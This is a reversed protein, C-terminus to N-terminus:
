RIGSFNTNTKPVIDIIAAGDECIAGTIQRYIQDVQARSVAQYARDPSAIERIFEMNVEQGLGIVYVEVGTAKLASAAEKAYAEPEEKPATALGDTLLILVSRADPTNKHHM